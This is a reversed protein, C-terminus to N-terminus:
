KLKLDAQKEISKLTGIPVDRKPHPVTVRGTKTPHKFQTHSGKQAVQEWGDAKLANIIDASKM